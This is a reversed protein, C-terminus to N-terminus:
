TVASRRHSSRSRVQELARLFSKQAEMPGFDAKARMRANRSLTCRWERDDILRRLASAVAVPDERDVVSGCGYQGLYWSVFSDPPVLALIPTGSALYDGFKGPASTRIVEPIEGDLALPVFLIDASNQAQAAQAPLVHEHHVV